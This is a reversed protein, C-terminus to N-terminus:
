KSKINDWYNDSDQIHCHERWTSLIARLQNKSMNYAASILPISYAQFLRAVSAAARTTVRHHFFQIPPGLLDTTTTSSDPDFYRQHVIRLTVPRNNLRIDKLNIAQKDHHHMGRITNSFVPDWSPNTSVSLITRCKHNPRILCSKFLNCTRCTEQTKHNAEIAKLPIKKDLNLYDSYFALFDKIEMPSTDPPFDFDERADVGETHTDAKCTNSLPFVSQSDSGKKSTKPKRHWAWVCSGEKCYERSTKEKAM